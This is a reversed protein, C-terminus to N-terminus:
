REEDNAGKADLYSKWADSPNRGKAFAYMGNYKFLYCRDEAYYYFVCPHGKVARWYVCWLNNTLYQISKDFTM